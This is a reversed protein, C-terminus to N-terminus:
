GAWRAPSVQIRRITNGDHYVAFVKDGLVEIEAPRTGSPAGAKNTNLEEEQTPEINTKVNYFIGSKIKFGTYYTKGPVFTPMGVIDRDLRNFKIASNTSHAFEIVNNEGTYFRKTMWCNDFAFTQATVSPSFMNITMKGGKNDYAAREGTSFACSVFNITFTNWWGFINTSSYIFEDAKVKADAVPDTTYSITLGTFSLTTSNAISVCYRNFAPYSKGGRTINNGVYVGRFEIKCGLDIIEQQREETGNAYDGFRARIARAKAYIEDTRTGYPLFEINGGRFNVENDDRHNVPNSEYTATTGTVSVLRKGIVHTKGEKLYITRRVDSPGQALAYGITALPKEKTGRKNEFTIPEDLGADPDVYVNAFIDDPVNGYYLGDGNWRLQNNAATSIPVIDKALKPTNGFVRRMETNIEDEALNAKTGNERTIQKGPQTYKGFLMKSVINEMIAKNSWAFDKVATDKSDVNQKNYYNDALNRKDANVVGELQTISERIPPLLADVQQKTYTSGKLTNISGNLTQVREDIEPKSYVGLQKINELTLGHVNGRANIHNDLAGKLANVKQVVDDNIKRKLEELKANVGNNNDGILNAVDVDVKNKLKELKADFGGIAEWIVNHSEEDGILTAKILREIVYILGEYGYTQWIPHFHEAPPFADPKNAINLWSVPRNDLNLSNLKNQLAPIDISTFQGGVAQYTVSINKSVTKDVLVITSAAGLGTLGAITESTDDFFYSARPVVQNNKKDKIVVSEIYFHAHRPSIIRVERDNLVHGEESVLNNPNRGSKDFEYRIKMEPSIPM